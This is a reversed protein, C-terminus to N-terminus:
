NGIRFRRGVMSTVVSKASLGGLNSDSAVTETGHPKDSGLAAVAIPTPTPTASEKEDDESRTAPTNEVINSIDNISEESKVVYERALSLVASLEEEGHKAYIGDVLSAANRFGHEKMLRIFAARMPSKAGGIGKRVALSAVSVCTKFRDSIKSIDGATAATRAAVEKEIHQRTAEDTTVDVITPEFGFDALKQETSSPDNVDVAASLTTLLAANFKTRDNFISAIEPKAKTKSAVAVLKNNAVMFYQTDGSDCTHAVFEINPNEDLSALVSKLANAEITNEPADVTEGEKDDDAPPADAPPADAPPADAPPADAPPEEDGIEDSANSELESDDTEDDAGEDSDDDADDMESEGDDESSEDTEPMADEGDDEGTEFDSDDGATVSADNEPDDSEETFGDGDAKDFPDTDGTGEDTPTDSEDMDEEGIEATIKLPEACVPCNATTGKIHSLCEKTSVFEAQCTECFAAVPLEQLEGRKLTLTDAEKKPQMISDCTPCSASSINNITATTKCSPCDHQRVVVGNKGAQKGAASRAVLVINPRAMGAIATLLRTRKM